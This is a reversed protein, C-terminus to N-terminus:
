HRSMLEPGQAMNVDTYILLLCVAYLGVGTYRLSIRPLLFYMDTSRADM